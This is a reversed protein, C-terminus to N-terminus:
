THSMELWYTLLGFAFTHYLDRNSLVQGQGQGQNLEDIWAPIGDRLDKRFIKMSFWHVDHYISYMTLIQLEIRM